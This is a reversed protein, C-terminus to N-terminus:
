QFVLTVSVVHAQRDTQQRTSVRVAHMGQAVLEHGAVTSIFTQSYTPDFVDGPKLTWKTALAEAARPPIGLFQVTGMHYQSGESFKVEYTALHAADDLQMDTEVKLDLFGHTYYSVRITNLGAEIKYASALEGAQMRISKDLDESPFAHNGVWIAKAWNYPQGQDITIAAGVPFSTASAGPSESSVLPTINDIKLRWYGKNHFAGTLGKSAIDGLRSASYDQGFADNLAAELDKEPIASAGIFTVSQIPMSIGTIHFSVASTRDSKQEGVLTYEVKASAAKTHVLTELTTVADDLLTGRVPVLGNYLPLHTRLADELEASTFWIFNDYVCPALDKSETLDYIVSLDPGNTKYNYAVEDFAGSKSLKKQVTLLDDTTVKSNQKLGTFAAMQAETIKALGNFKLGALRYNVPAASSQAPLAVPAALFAAMPLLGAASFALACFRHLARLRMPSM